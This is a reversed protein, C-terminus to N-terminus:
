EHGPPELEARTFCHGGDLQCGGDRDFDFKNACYAPQDTIQLFVCMLQICLKIARSPDFACIPALEISFQAKEICLKGTGSCVIEAGHANSLWPLESDFHRGFRV